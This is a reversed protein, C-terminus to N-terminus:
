PHRWSCSNFAAYRWRKLEVYIGRASSSNVAEMAFFALLSTYSQAMSKVCNYVSLWRVSSFDKISIIPDDYVSQWLQLEARRATSHSFYSHVDRIINQYVSIEPVNDTASITALNLRHAICHVAILHPVVSRLRAAVGNHRSTM